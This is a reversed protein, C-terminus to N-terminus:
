ILFAWSTWTWNRKWDLPCFQFFICTKEKEDDERKRRRRGMCFSLVALPDEFNISSSLENLSMSTLLVTKFALLDKSYKPWLQLCTSDWYFSKVPQDHPSLISPSIFTWSAYKVSVFLSHEEEEKHLKWLAPQADSTTIQWLVQRASVIKKELPCNKRDTVM